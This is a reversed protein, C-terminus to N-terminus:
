IWRKEKLYIAERLYQEESLYKMSFTPCREKLFHIVTGMTAKKGSKSPAANWRETAEQATRPGNKGRTSLTVRIFDTISFGGQKLGHGIAFWEEYPIVGCSCLHQLIREQQRDPLPHYDIFAHQPQCSEEIHEKGAEILIAAVDAPLTRDTMEKISCNPTGYFLRSADKCAEDAYTFHQILGTILLRYDEANTIPQELRFLIRFKEHESTYSPTAYYGAGFELYLEDKQLEQISMGEDIDIMVLERSLFNAEGKKSSILAACTACGDVTILEFVEPWTLDVTEWGEGLTRKAEDDIPKGIVTHYSIKM